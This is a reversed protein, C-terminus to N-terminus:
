AMVPAVGPPTSLMLAGPAIASGASTPPLEVAGVFRPLKLQVSVSFSETTELTVSAAVL